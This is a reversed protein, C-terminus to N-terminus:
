PRSPSPSWLKWSLSAGLQTPGGAIIIRQVGVDVTVFSAVNWAIAGGITPLFGSAAFDASAIRGYGYGPIIAARFQSAKWVPFAIEIPLGLAVSTATSADTGRYRAGGVSLQLAAGASIPRRDATGFNHNWVSSRLDVGGFQWGSCTPCEVLGYGFTLSLQTRAFGFSRRVTLGINDHVVDDADYRWRGYRLSADYVGPAAAGPDRAVPALAGVPTLVMGDWAALQSASQGAVPRGAGTAVIFLATAVRGRGLRM